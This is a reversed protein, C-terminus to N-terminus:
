PWPQRCGKKIQHKCMFGFYFFVSEANNEAYVRLSGQM